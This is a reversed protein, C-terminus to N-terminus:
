RRAEGAPTLTLLRACTEPRRVLPLELIEVGGTAASTPATPTRVAIKM